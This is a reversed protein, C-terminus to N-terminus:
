VNSQGGQILNLIRDRHERTFLFYHEVAEIVAIRRTCNFARELRRTQRKIWRLPPRKYDAEAMVSAIPLAIQKSM